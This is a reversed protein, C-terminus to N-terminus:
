EDVWGSNTDYFAVLNTLFPESKSFGHQSSRLVEKEEMQRSIVNLILLELVKGPISILSVPRYHGRVEKKGKRFVPM